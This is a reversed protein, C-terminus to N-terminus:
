PKSTPLPSPPPAENLPPPAATSAGVDSCRRKMSAVRAVYEAWQSPSSGESLMDLARAQTPVAESCRGAAALAAALTDLFSADDPAMRVAAVAMPLAEGSNEQRLDMWALANFAAPHDPLLETAKRYAEACEESNEGGERLADGLTLWALGDRPHALTAQRARRLREDSSLLPMQMRLARVSGPDDVLAAAVEAAAEKDRGAAFAAAARVAHVEASTMARERLSTDVAPIRVSRNRYEGYRVFHNLEKDLDASVLTPFAAKWAKDPDIGKALLTQFRAFEHPRTNYLFHVMLWSLGYLGSLTGEDRPDSKSGWDLADAVTVTRNRNYDRVGRLNIDGLTATGGDPSVRLTELFQSLGISFWRPQRQYFFAALHAALAQKLVSNTEELALTERSEWKEPPGFLFVTLPYGGEVTTGSVFDGFYGVFDVQSALVVLEMREPQLLAADPWAAALMAARLREAMLAARRAEAPKLDTKVTIHPAHIEIWGTPEAAALPGSCLLVGFAALRQALVVMAPKFKSFNRSGSPGKKEKGTEQTASKERLRV